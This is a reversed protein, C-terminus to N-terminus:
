LSGAPRAMSIRSDLACAGLEPSHVTEVYVTVELLNLEPASPRVAVLRKEPHLLCVKHEKLYAYTTLDQFFGRFLDYRHKVESDKQRCNELTKSHLICSLCYVYQKLLACIRAWKKRAVEKIASQVVKKVM